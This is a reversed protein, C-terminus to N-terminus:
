RRTAGGVKVNQNGNGSGKGARHYGKQPAAVLVIGIIEPAAKNETSEGLNGLVSNAKKEVAAM